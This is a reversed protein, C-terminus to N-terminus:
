VPFQVEAVFYGVPDPATDFELGIHVDPLPGLTVDIEFPEGSPASFIVPGSFCPMTSLIRRLRVTGGPRSNYLRVRYNGSSGGTVYVFATTATTAGGFVSCTIPGINAGITGVGLTNCVATTTTQQTVAKGGWLPGGMPGPPTRGGWVVGTFVMGPCCTPLGDPRYDVHTDPDFTAGNEFDSATGCQHQGRAGPVPQMNDTVHRAGWVEGVGSTPLYDDGERDWVSQMIATEFPLEEADEHCPYWIIDAEADSDNFFRCRTRYRHRGWEM